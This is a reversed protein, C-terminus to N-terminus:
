SLWIALVMVAAVGIGFLVVFLSVLFFTAVISKPWSLAFIRRLAFVPYLLIWIVFVAEIRDSLAQSVFSGLWAIASSLLKWLMVFALLQMAIVLHELLVFRRKRFLFRMVLALAPVSLLFVRPLWNNFEAMIADPNKMKEALTEGPPSEDREVGRDEILEEAIGESIGEAISIGDGSTLWIFYILSSFLFLRLPPIQSKRKGELFLKANYGPRFLM